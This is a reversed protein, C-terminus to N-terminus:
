IAFYLIALVSLAVVYTRPSKVAYLVPDEDVLGRGAFIWLCSVWYLHLPLILWLLQPRSYLDITVSGNFFYLALVLCSILSSSCGLVLLTWKDQAFYGRGSANENSQLKSVEAFRKLAALGFFLFISFALLWPSAKVGTSEGGALIRMTYMGALLIIDLSQVQKLRFSYALNSIFYFLLVLGFTNSSLGALILAGTVAIGYLMLGKGISLTGSAFPRNRKSPHKRDSDLDLLDNLLYISSATCCFALCAVVAKLWLSPDVAHALILPLFILANKAWQHIRVAKKLVKATVKKSDDVLEFPINASKLSAKLSRSPNVVLASGLEKWIALDARADGIYELKALPYRKRLAQVKEIGKLNRESSGMYSDFVGLHEAIKKVYTEHSASALIVKMGESRAKEIRKLVKDNYPLLEPKIEVHQALMNKLAVKGKCLAAIVAFGRLPNKKIFSFFSEQLLDTKILTNDLDVVLINETDM